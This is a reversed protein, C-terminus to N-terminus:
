GGVWEGICDATHFMCLLADCVGLCKLYAFQTTPIVDSSEM